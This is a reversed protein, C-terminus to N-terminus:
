SQTARKAPNSPGTPVEVEFTENVERAVNRAGTIGEKGSVSQNYRLYSVAPLRLSQGGSLKHLVPVTATPRQEVQYGEQRSRSRTSLSSLVTVKLLANLLRSVVRAHRSM